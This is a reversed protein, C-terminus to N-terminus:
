SSAPRRGCRSSSSPPSRPTRPGSGTRVSRGRLRRRDTGRSRIAAHLLLALHERRRDDAPRDAHFVGDPYLHARRHPRQGVSGDSARPRDLPITGLAFWLNNSLSQWFIPDDLMLGYNELGVFRSAAESPRATSYFSEVISALAPWHTVLALCAMAPLSSSGAMSRPPSAANM